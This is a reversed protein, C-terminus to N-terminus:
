NINKTEETLTSDIKKNIPKLVLNIGKDLLNTLPKAITKLRIFEIITGAIFVILIIPISYVILLSSEALKSVNFINEWLVERFLPNDHILYVGFVCSSVANIFKNKFPKINKAIAFLGIAIGVVLVSNRSYFYDGYSKLFSLSSIFEPITNIVVTSAFLLTFCVVVLLVGSNKKSIINEPYKSLYAGILYFMVFHPIESWMMGQMTFTPLIVWLIILCLLLCFYNNRSLNKILINIFPSILMLVVYATFFWYERFLTPFVITLLTKLSPKYNFGVIVVLALIVSYFWVQVFLSSLRKTSFNKNCYFYGTIIVFVNVGINGLIGCQLFIKNFSYPMANVDLGNHVCLHSLVIFLMAIIRLLEISSNRQQKQIM